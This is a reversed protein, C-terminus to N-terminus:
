FKTQKKNVVRDHMIHTWAVGTGSKTLSVKMYLSYHKIM